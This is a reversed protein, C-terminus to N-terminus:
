RNSQQLNVLKTYLSDMAYLEDHTGSEKLAGDELVLIL